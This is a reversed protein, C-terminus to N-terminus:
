NDLTKHQIDCNYIDPGQVFYAQTTYQSIPVLSSM